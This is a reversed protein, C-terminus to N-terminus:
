LVVVFIVEVLQKQFHQLSDGDKGDSLVEEDLGHEAYSKLPDVIVKGEPCNQALLTQLDSIFFAHLQQLSIHLFSSLAKILRVEDLLCEVAPLLLMNAKFDKMIQLLQFRINVLDISLQQSQEYQLLIQLYNHLIEITEASEILAVFQQKM